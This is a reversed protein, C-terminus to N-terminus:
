TGTQGAFVEVSQITEPPGRAGRAWQQLYALTGLGWAGMEIVGSFELVATRSQRWSGSEAESTCSPM